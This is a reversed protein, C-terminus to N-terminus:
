VNTVVEALKNGLERYEAEYAKVLEWAEDYRARRGAVSVEAAGEFTEHWLGAFGYQFGNTVEEEFFTGGVEGGVWKYRTTSQHRLTRTFTIGKYVKTDSM